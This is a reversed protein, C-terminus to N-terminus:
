YEEYEEVESLLFILKKEDFCYQMDNSLTGYISNMIEVFDPSPDHEEDDLFTKFDKLNMKSILYALSDPDKFNAIYWSAAIRNEDCRMSMDAGSNILLKTIQLHDGKKGYNVHLPTRSSINSINPDAGHELLLKVMGLYGSESAMFLPTEEECKSQENLFSSSRKLLLEAIKIDNTIAAYHLPTFSSKTNEVKIDICTYNLLYTAIHNFGSEFSQYLPSLINSTGSNENIYPILTPHANLLTQVEELNGRKIIQNLNLWLNKLQNNEM